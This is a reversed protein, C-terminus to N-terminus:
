KLGLEEVGKAIRKKEAANLERQPPRVFGADFGRLRMIEKLGALGGGYTFLRTARELRLQAKWAKKLDGKKVNKYVDYYIDIYANSSGSVVAKGGAVLAQFGQEDAGNIVAFGNEAQGFLRTLLPMSGSSDKIGVINEHASALKYILEASLANKACSPLNYLLIPFKPAAKAIAKYYQEMAVDDYGYFSPAIVAAAYAGSKQAHLTLEITTATDMAGTHAIVRAKKGAGQITEDLITKREETSCLSGEGTTGCPFLGAAGKKVMRAALPAVKDFDVYEGGKTFPTVSAVIIGELTFRM